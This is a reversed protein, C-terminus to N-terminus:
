YKNAHEIYCDECILNYTSMCNENVIKYIDTEVHHTNLKPPYFIDTPLESKLGCIDISTNGQMWIIENWAQSPDFGSLSNCPIDTYVINPLM